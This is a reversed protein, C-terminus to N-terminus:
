NVRAAVVRVGTIQAARQPDIGFIRVVEHIGAGYSLVRRSALTILATSRRSSPKTHPIPRFKARM